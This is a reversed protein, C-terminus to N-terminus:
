GVHQRSVAMRYRRVWDQHANCAGDVCLVGAIVLSPTVCSWALGAARFRVRHCGLWSCLMMPVRRCSSGASVLGLDARRGQDM